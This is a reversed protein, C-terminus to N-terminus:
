KLKENIFVVGNKNYCLGCKACAKAGCNIKGNDHDFVTFVKDIFDYGTSQLADYIVESFESNLGAVSFIINLNEPKTLNFEEFAAKIVQPNKTWMACKIGDKALEECITFYNKVQLTSFLDGYAEFRFYGSKPKFHYVDEPKVTYHSYFAENRKLKAALAPYRKMMRRSFCHACISTIIAARLNCLWNFPSTSISILDTMKGTHKLCASNRMWKQIPSLRKAMTKNRWEQTHM